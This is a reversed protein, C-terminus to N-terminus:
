AETMVVPEESEQAKDTVKRVPLTFIFKAGEGERSEVWIRGGHRQAIKKCIALGIGNGPYETRTHLRQFALFIRDAYQPDIGIGNDEVSITWEGADRSGRIRVAPSQEGHFKMANAILNQLLQRMQTADAMVVPLNESEVRADKEHITAALMGCVERVVLNLDVPVFPTGRTTVRSLALLDNILAQMRQAGEVAYDIYKDATSDLHQHYRSALLQTYSAVMRLPEQLDHSAVYAFQELEENSRALEQARHALEEEARKRDTIDRAAAFVGEIEGAENRFVTANYVVDMVHGSTHLIALAYDRVFGEAFVQQYGERAKKPDTFYESFDSGILRDRAIGTATETARNVDTIHGDRSITVLPDLSAELLSRAYLSAKRVAEEAKKRETVDRAAAFVGEIEGAENRFVTANYLVDTVRGSTHRVALPYDRVYGEAFVQQYGERAKQPDTFYDSFDSGILVDRAIGTAMETARNVDTIHGERSITVLPDLSAELLSRAYLSVKRLAEDALKRETIDTCTGVWERIAGDEDAVPSGRVAVHRYEGDHRRLRYETDYLSRTQLSHRWIEATRERDDPHLSNIWGWGQIDEVSMGTFERWLPMDSVVRGDAATTWVIQSTALVLSRYRAESAALAAEARKRETIDFGMELILTSGDLDTFPADFVDYDRGNPGTWAWQLPLKTKLVKYTECIECPEAREFLYEYCRRGHSEGFHERFYRNAFRVHYDPSLLVVYAPLIDLVSTLRQRERQLAQETQERQAIDTNILSSDNM